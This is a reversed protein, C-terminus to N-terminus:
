KQRKFWDKAVSLTARPLIMQVDFDLLLHNSALKQPYDPNSIAWRAISVLDAEEHDILAASLVPDHMGGNAIIPINTEVKALKTTTIGGLDATERFDTGESAIHIYDAGSAELAHYFITAEPIGNWRYAKDNVKSQSIRVGVLFEEPVTQKISAIVESTLRIRNEANGGYKDTRLNTYTTAFQDLLYGNAAHVEVGHFGAEVARVAAQLFGFVVKKIDEQTLAKSPTPYKEPGDYVRLTKGKPTIISPGVTESHYQSLAGAHMIQMISIAAHQRIGKTTPKGVRLMSKNPLELNARM